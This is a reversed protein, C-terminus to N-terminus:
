MWRIEMRDRFDRGFKRAPLVGEGGEELISLHYATTIPSLHYYSFPVFYYHFYPSLCFLYVCTHVCRMSLPLFPSFGSYFPLVSIRIIIRAEERREQEEM